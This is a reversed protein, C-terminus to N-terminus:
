CFAGVYTHAHMRIYQLLSAMLLKRCVACHYWKSRKAQTYKQERVGWYGCGVGGGIVYLIYMLAGCM